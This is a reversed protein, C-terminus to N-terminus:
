SLRTDITDEDRKILLLLKSDYPQPNASNIIM